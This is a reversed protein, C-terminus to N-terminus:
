VRGQYLQLEKFLKLITSSRSRNENGDAPEDNSNIKFSIQYLISALSGLGLCIIMLNRFVAQDKPGIIEDRGINNFLAWAIM